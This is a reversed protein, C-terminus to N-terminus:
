IISYKVMHRILINVSAVDVKSSCCLCIRASCFLDTVRSAISFFREKHLADLEEKDILGGYTTKTDVISIIHGLNMLRLVVNYGIFGLGGTVLIKKKENKM